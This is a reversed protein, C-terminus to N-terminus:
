YNGTEWKRCLAYLEAYGIESPNALERELSQAFRLEHPNLRQKVKLREEIAAAYEADKSGDAPPTERTQLGLETWAAVSPCDTAPQMCGALGFLTVTLLAYYVTRM